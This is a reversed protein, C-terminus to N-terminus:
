MSYSSPWDVSEDDATYLKKLGDDLKMLPCTNPTTQIAGCACLDSDALSWLKCCAGCHGQNTRIRNLTCWQKRPLGFRPPRITPDQVLDCNVVYSSSCRTYNVTEGM